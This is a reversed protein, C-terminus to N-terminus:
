NCGAAPKNSTMGKVGVLAAKKFGKTLVEDGPQLPKLQSM